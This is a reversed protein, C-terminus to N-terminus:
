WGSKMIATFRYGYRHMLTDEHRDANNVTQIRKRGNAHGVMAEGDHHGTIAEPAALYNLPRHLPFLTTGYNLYAVASGFSTYSAYDGSIL